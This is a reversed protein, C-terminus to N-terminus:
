PGPPSGLCDAHGPETGALLRQLSAPTDADAVAQRPLPVAVWPGAALASQWAREGARVLAAIAPGLTAPWCALSPQARGDVEAVGSRGPGAAAVLAALHDPRLLPLDCPAVVVLGTRAWLLVTALAALPGAGPNRDAITPIGLATGASGGVAVVPDAGAQRLADVVWAGLPRGGADALAKDTGFRRSRGGCLVAGILPGPREPPAAM